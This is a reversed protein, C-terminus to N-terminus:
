SAAALPPTSPPIYASAVVERPALKRGNLWLKLDQLPMPRAIYYGQFLQCGFGKLVALQEQTEVGEAVCNIELSACLSVISALLRRGAEDRLGQVFARDIKVTKIPLRHLYALSSYGTGFDDLAIRLGLSRLLRVSEEAKAFDDLMSTETLEIFIRSTNIGTESVTAVLSLMTAPDALDKASLNFSVFVEEPLQKACAIAKRFLCITLAHIVGTKEALPIFADPPVCGHTPSTWRALTEVAVVSGDGAMVPQLHMDLEAELDASRLAAELARESRIAAEHDGSYLTVSGRAESKSTYLAYDACDYLEHATPGAEPFSAVGCSAGVVMTTEEIRFPRSLAACMREAHEMAAEGNLCALFGFEDGGLRAVLMDPAAAEQLRAAAAELLRDGLAHGYTDNIPKFRDLDIIGLAVERGDRASRAMAAGLEDFFQRRNPLGTLADTRALGANERGLRETESQTLVLQEFSRFANVLVRLIVAVVLFINIAMAIFVPSGLSVYYALYPLMTIGTVWYAARPLHMLCFICGIVTTPIFVAVYANEALGGFSNLSLSWGIYTASILAALRTTRGLERAAEQATAEHRRRRLWCLARAVGVMLLMAPAVLTMWRPAIQLHTVAIAVANVSLLAYLLPVQRQLERYQAIALAGSDSASASADLRKGRFKKM